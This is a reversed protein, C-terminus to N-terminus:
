RDEPLFHELRLRDIRDAAEKARPGQVDALKQYIAIAGRWNKSAELAQAAEFGARYFWLTEPVEKDNKPPTLVDYFAALMEDNKGQAELAKGKKYLALNRWERILDPQNLLDDYAKVADALRAPTTGGLLYLTDARAALTAWLLDVPPRSELVATYLVLAEELAGTDKKITAQEFRAHYQLPGKMRVVEEFFSIADDVAKPNMTRIASQAALFRAAELLPSEPFRNIVLEFQTGASAYDKAAFSAEGMKFRIEPELSSGPHDLLFKEARRVIEQPDTSADISQFVKLYDMREATAPSPVAQAALQLQQDALPVNKPTSELALEAMAVRADPVRQHEPFDRVFRQLTAMAEQLAGTRAHLFAQELLLDRRLPSEPYLRSFEQYAMMFKDFDAARLFALAANYFLAQAADGASQAALSFAEAAQTYRGAAFFASALNTRLESTLVPSTAVGLGDRLHRIADIWKEEAALQQGYRLLVTARLPHTPFKDLWGALTELAETSGKERLDLQSQYYIAFAQRQIQSADRSWRRLEASSPNKEVQYVQNLAIFFKELHEHTPHEEVLKELLNGAEETQGRAVLCRALGLHVAAYAKSDLTSPNLALTRYAGEAVVYNNKALNAEALFLTPLYSDNSSADSPLTVEKNDGLELDIRRWRADEGLRSDNELAQYDAIAPSNQGLAKRAEARAFLLRAQTESTEKPLDLTAELVKKWNEEILYTQVTLLTKEESEELEALVSHASDAHRLALYARVLEFRAERTEEASIKESLLKRLKQMAVQPLGERSAVQAERLAAPASQACALLPALALLVTLPLTPRSM